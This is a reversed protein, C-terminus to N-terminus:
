EPSQRISRYSRWARRSLREGSRLDKRIGESANALFPHANSKALSALADLLTVGASLLTALQRIYRAHDKPKTKRNFTFVESKPAVESIQFIDLRRAQIINYAAAEDRAEIKGKVTTGNRDLAKFKFNAM